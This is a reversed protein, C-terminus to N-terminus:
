ISRYQYFDVRVGATAGAGGVARIIFYKCRPLISNSLVGNNPLMTFSFYPYTALDASMALEDDNALIMWELNTGTENVITIGKPYMIYNEQTRQAGDTLLLTANIPVTITYGALSNLATTTITTAPVSHSYM